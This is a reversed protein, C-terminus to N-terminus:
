AKMKATVFQRRCVELGALGLALLFATTAVDPVTNHSTGGTTYTLSIGGVDFHCDPDIAINFIGGNATLISNLTTLQAATLVYSWTLTTGVASFFQTGISTLTGAATHSAWYDGAADGDYATTVGTAKSNLLDTYLTGTGDSNGSATLKISSFDIEASTVQQGSPVAISIGWSYANNGELAGAGILSSPATITTAHLLGSIGVLTGLLFLKKM